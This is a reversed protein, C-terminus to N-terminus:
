RARVHEASPALLAAIGHMDDFVVSVPIPLIGGRLDADLRMFDKETTVLLAAADDARRRLAAIERRTFWHHDPFSGTGILKAGHEALMVFFKDPRGIGAFAVIKQGRVIAPNDPVLTAHFIPGRCSAFRHAGRGITIIGDARALGRDIPERLPGAPILKGNGFGAEGDVVVFAIDKALAFNQFGDDM